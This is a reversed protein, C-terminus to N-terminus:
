SSSQLSKRETWPMQQGPFDEFSQAEMTCGGDNATYRGFFGVPAKQTLDVETPPLAARKNCVLTHPSRKGKKQDRGRVAHAGSSSRARAAVKSGVKHLVGDSLRRDVGRRDISGQSPIV